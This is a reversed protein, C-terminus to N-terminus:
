GRAAIVYCAGLEVAIIVLLQWIPFRSEIGMKPGMTWGLITAAVSMVVLVIFGPSALIETDLFDLQAKKNM